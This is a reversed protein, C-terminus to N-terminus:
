INNSGYMIWGKIGIDPADVPASSLYSVLFKEKDMLLFAGRIENVHFQTLPHIVLLYGVM